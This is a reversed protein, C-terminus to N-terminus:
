RIRGLFRLEELTEEAIMGRSWPPEWVITVEVPNFQSLKKEIEAVIVSGFPCGPFTLTVAVHVGRDDIAVGYLLGLDVISVGLEPDLVEFLKEIVDSREVM